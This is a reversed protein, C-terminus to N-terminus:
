EQIIIADVPCSEAVDKVYCKDCSQATVEALNGNMKFCEPCMAECTGCGICKDEDILVKM